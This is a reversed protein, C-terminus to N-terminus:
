EMEFPTNERLDKLVPPSNDSLPVTERIGSEQSLFERLTVSCGSILCKSVEDSSQFVHKHDAMSTTRQNYLKSNSSEVTFTPDVKM